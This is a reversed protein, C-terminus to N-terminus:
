YTINKINFFIQRHLACIINKHTANKKVEDGAREKVDAQKNTSKM